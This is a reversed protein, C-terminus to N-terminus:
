QAKSELLHYTNATRAKRPLSELSLSLCRFVILVHLRLKTFGDSTHTCVLSGKVSSSIKCYLYHVRGRWQWQQVRRNHIILFELFEIIVHDYSIHNILTISMVPQVINQVVVVCIMGRVCGSHV